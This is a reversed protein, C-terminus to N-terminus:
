AEDAMKILEDLEKRESPSKSMEDIHILCTGCVWIHGKAKKPQNDKKCGHESLNCMRCINYGQMKKKATYVEECEMCKKTETNIEKHNKDYREILIVEETKKDKEGMIIGSSSHNKRQKKTPPPKTPITFSNAMHKQKEPPPNNTEHTDINEPPPNNTKHTDINKPLKRPVFGHKNEIKRHSKKMIIGTVKELIRKHTKDSM